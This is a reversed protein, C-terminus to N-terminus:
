PRVPGGEAVDGGLMASHGIGAQRDGEGEIVVGDRVADAAAIRRHLERMGLEPWADPPRPDDRQEFPLADRARPEHGPMRELCERLVGARDHVAPMLQWAM